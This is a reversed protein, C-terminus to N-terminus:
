KSERIKRFLDLQHPTLSPPIDITIVAYLDGRSGDKRPLGRGSIRLRRGARSCAPLKIKVAGDPAPVSIEAGLAADWPMIHVRTELDDGSVTFDPHPSIHINVYLDGSRGSRARRGQGKLRIRTGDRLGKPLNVRMNKTELKNGSGRCVHCIRTKLRGRGGCERCVDHHSFSLSQQGGRLVDSLSLNLDAEMDESSTQRGGFGGTFEEIDDENGARGSETDDMGGFMSRFFDSFDGFQVSDQAGGGSQRYHFGEQNGTGPHPPAQRGESWDKGLQDYTRRKVPDSLVENAENIAKFRNEADKSGPNKDPHHKMALKRYASKIEAESASRPVGLISYYDIFEPM